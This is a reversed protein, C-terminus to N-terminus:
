RARLPPNYKEYDDQDQHMAEFLAQLALGTRHSRTGGNIGACFQVQYESFAHSLPLISVIIDGDDERTLQLKMPEGMDGRLEVQDRKQTM